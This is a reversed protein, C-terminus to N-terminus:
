VGVMVSLFAANSASIPVIIIVARKTHVNTNVMRLKRRPTTGRYQQERREDMRKSAEGHSHEKVDEMFRLRSELSLM